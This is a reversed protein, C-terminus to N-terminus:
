QPEEFIFKIAGKNCDILTKFVFRKVANLDDYQADSFYDEYEEEFYFNEADVYKAKAISYVFPDFTINFSYYIKGNILKM